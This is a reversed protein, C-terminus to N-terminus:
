RNLTEGRQQIASQYEGQDEEPQYRVLLKNDKIARALQIEAVTVRIKYEILVRIKEARSCTRSEGDYKM